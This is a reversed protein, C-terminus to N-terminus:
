PATLQPYTPGIQRQALSTANLMSIGYQVWDTCLVACSCRGSAMDAQQTTDCPLDQPANDSLAMADMMGCLAVAGPPSPSSPPSPSPCSPPSPPPSPPPSAVAAEPVVEALSGALKNAVLIAGAKARAGWRSPAGEQKIACAAAVAADKQQVVHSSPHRALAHADAESACGAAAAYM